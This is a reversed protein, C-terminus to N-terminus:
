DGTMIQKALQRPLLSKTRRAPCHLSLQFEIQPEAEGLLLFVEKVPQGVSKLFEFSSFRTGTRVGAGRDADDVVTLQFGISADVSTTEQDM